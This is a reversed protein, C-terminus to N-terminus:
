NLTTRLVKTLKEFLDDRMMTDDSIDALAAYTTFKSMFTDFREQEGMHLNRCMARAKAQRHPNNYAKALTPIMDQATTYKGALYGTQILARPNEGTRSLDHGIKDDNGWTTESKLKVKM